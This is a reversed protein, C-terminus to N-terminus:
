LLFLTSPKLKQWKSIIKKSRKFHTKAFTHKAFHTNKCIIPKAFHTNKYLTPKAL